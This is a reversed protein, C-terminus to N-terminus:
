NFIKNFNCKTTSHIGDGQYSFGPLSKNSISRGGPRFNCICMKAAPNTKKFKILEQKIVDIEFTYGKAKLLVIEKNM